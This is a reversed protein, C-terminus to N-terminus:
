LQCPCYRDLRKIFVFFLFVFGHMSMIRKLKGEYPQAENEERQTKDILKRKAKETDEINQLRTSYSFM